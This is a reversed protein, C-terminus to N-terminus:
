RVGGQSGAPERAVAKTVIAHRVRGDACCVGERAVIVPDGDALSRHGTSVVRAGREIGGTIEVQDGRVAGLTLPRWRAVNDEGVVFVGNDDLRTVLMDQPLLLKGADGGRVFEVQAIMGPLLQQNPNPLEAEVKFTRTNREAVPEILVVKGEIPEASGTTSVLARTGKSLTGIDQDSVSVSVRVPDLMVLTGIPQGPATVEGKEIELNVLVGAFPARITTRSVQTLAMRHQARARAVRATAGDIRAQAVAQGMQQIRALERESEDLEVKALDLQAAHTTADVRAIIQNQQVKQGSSVMVQEVYGGLAAALRADRAGIVEGPRVLRHTTTSGELVAVEVRAASAAPAKKPTAGAPAGSPPPPGKSCAGLMLSGALAWSSLIRPRAILSVSPKNTPTNM